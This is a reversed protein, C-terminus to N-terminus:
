RRARTAQRRTAEPWSMVHVIVTVFEPLASAVSTTTVSSRGAPNVKTEALASDPSDLPVTVKVIARTGIPPWVETEM